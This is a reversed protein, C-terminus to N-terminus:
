LEAEDQVNIWIDDSQEFLKMMTNYFAQYADWSKGITFRTDVTGELTMGLLICGATHGDHNGTHFLIHTFNPVGTIEFVCEHGWREKYADYFRGYDRKVIRYRGAPIRTEGAVKEDRHEDELTFCFIGDNIYLDGYTDTKSQAKRKLFLEM